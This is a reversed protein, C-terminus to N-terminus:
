YGLSEIKISAKSNTVLKGTLEIRAFKSLYSM